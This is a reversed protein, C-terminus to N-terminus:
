PAAVPLTGAPCPESATVPAPKATIVLVISFGTELDGVGTLLTLQEEATRRYVNDSFQAVPVGCISVVQYRHASGRWTVDIREGPAVFRLRVFVGNCPPQASKCGVDSVSRGSMIANGGHGPSGGLAALSGFDYLVVDYPGDPSPLAAGPQFKKLTLPADIGLSPIVIGDRPAATPASTRKAEAGADDGSCGIILAALLAAAALASIRM